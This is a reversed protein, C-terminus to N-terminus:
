VPRLGLSNVQVSNIYTPRYLSLTSYRNKDLSVVHYSSSVLKLSDVSLRVLLGSGTAGPTVISKFWHTKGIASVGSHGSSLESPTDHDIVDLPTVSKFDHGFPALPLDLDFKHDLINKSWLKARPIFHWNYRWLHLKSM